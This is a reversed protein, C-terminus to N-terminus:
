LTSEKIMTGSESINNVDINSNQKRKSLTEQRTSNNTYGGSEQPSFYGTNYKSNARRGGKSTQVRKFMSTTVNPVQSLPSMPSLTAMSM